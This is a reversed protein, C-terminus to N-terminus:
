GYAFINQRVGRWCEGAMMSIQNTIDPQRWAMARARSAGDEEARGAGVQVRVALQVRANAALHAVQVDGTQGALTL